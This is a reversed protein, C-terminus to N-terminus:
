DWLNPPGSEGASRRAEIRELIFRQFEPQRQYAGTGVYALSTAIHYPRIYADTRFVEKDGADLFLLTPTYNIGLERSWDRAALERGDPTTISEASGIDVLAVDFQKLLEK